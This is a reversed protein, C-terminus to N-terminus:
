PTSAAVARSCRSRSVAMSFRSKGATSRTVTACMSRVKSPSFAAAPSTESAVDYRAPSRGDTRGGCSAVSRGRDARRPSRVPPARRTRHLGRPPHRGKGKYEWAFFGRKWVDAFGEGGGIKEAGKEFAFWEGVPDAEHPTPEGLMRCLDIFHAQASAREGTTIGPTYRPCFPRDVRPHKSPRRMTRSAAAARM